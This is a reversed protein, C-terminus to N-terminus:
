FNAITIFVTKGSVSISITMIGMKHGFHWLNESILKNINDSCYLWTKSIAMRRADPTKVVVNNLLMM